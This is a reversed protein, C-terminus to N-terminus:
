PSPLARLPEDKRGCVVSAWTEGGVDFVGVLCVSRGEDQTLVGSWSLADGAEAFTEWGDARLVETYFRVVDTMPHTTSFTVTEIPALWESGAEPDRIRVNAEESGPYFPAHISSSGRLTLGEGRLALAAGGGAAALVVLVILTAVFPHARPWDSVPTPHTLGPTPGPAPRGNLAILTGIVAFPVFAGRGTIWTTADVMGHVLMGVLSALGAWAATALAAEGARAYYRASALGSWFTLGLIALFAVLGPLGLDVGVQLVLNHAHTVEPDPAVLPLPYLLNVISVFTGAGIGTLPFDEMIYITRTWLALRGEWSSTLSSAGGSDLLASMGTQHLLVIAGLLAVPILWLFRRRRNALVVILAVAGALWGGRSQTLTLVALMLLAAAGSWLKRFWRQDLLRALFDPVTGKTSPLAERPRLLLVAVPFPLLMVVVGAMMNPHITDQVLTPLRGYIHPPILAKSRSIWRVTFPALLALGAGVGALGLTLLTIHSGRRAWNALGYVLALGALLRSVAAFTAHTDPTVLFTVGAMLLLLCVPWDLPTRMTPQGRALWRMLWLFAILGLGAWAWRTTFTALAAGLALPWVEHYAM